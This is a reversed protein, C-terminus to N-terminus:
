SCDSFPFGKCLDYTITRKTLHFVCLTLRTFDSHSKLGASIKLKDPRLTSDCLVAGTRFLYGATFYGSLDVPSLGTSGTKTGEWQPKETPACFHLSSVPYPLPRHNQPLNLHTLTHVHQVTYRAQNYRVMEIRGEKWLEELPTVSPVGFLAVMVMRDLSLAKPIIAKLETLIM